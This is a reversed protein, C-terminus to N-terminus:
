DEIDTTLFAELEREYQAEQEKAELEDAYKQELEQMYEESDRSKRTAPMESLYHRCERWAYLVADGIDTHYNDSVKLKGPTSRDWQVLYADEAFQSGKFTKLRANRLDDNMLEIFEFKRQKEAAFVHMKHRQRIEEQIKKGLAGADMVMKIPKYLEQLEKIKQVLSTIDLKNQVFEQVIFSHKTHRDFGLVAIADSDEYGIDIGFIYDLTEPLEEYYNKDQNFKYVLSDSDKVWKGYFERLISPDDKPVGRREAIEAIIDEPDRGSKIKIWPNDHMTWGFRAWGKSHYTEYFYGAPIPGPTGILILSGNYDTLAPELVEEVFSAIYPRFSQVEDIYIKRLALGRFKEIDSEDKAGSVYIINKYKPFRICLETNDPVGGLEYQENIDLLARWIIRKASRRNLTIYAVDGPQTLVTNILDAACAISKGARRSCVAIKFRDAARIFQLQKDFCYDELKFERKDARRKLEQLLRETKSM